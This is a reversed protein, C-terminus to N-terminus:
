LESKRLENKNESSYVDCTAIYETMCVNRLAKFLMGSINRDFYSMEIDQVSAFFSITDNKHSWYCQHINLAIETATVVHISLQVCSHYFLSITLTNFAAINM